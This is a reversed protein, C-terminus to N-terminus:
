RTQRRCGAETAERQEPSQHLQQRALRWGRARDVVEHMCRVTDVISTFHFISDISLVGQCRSQLVMVLPLTTNKSAGSSPALVMVPARGAPVAGTISITTGTWAASPAACLAIAALALLATASFRTMVTSLARMSIRRRCDRCSALGSAPATCVPTDPCATRFKWWHQRSCLQITLVITVNNHCRPPARSASVAQRPISQHDVAHPRVM